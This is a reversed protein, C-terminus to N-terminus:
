QPGCQNLLSDISSTAKNRRATWSGSLTVYNAGRDDLAAKSKEFFARREEPKGFLRLGDDIWPVDIDTLLYLDALEPTSAFWPDVSGTLTESWVATLVADTDEIILRNAIPELARRMAEHVQAITVLHDNIWDDPHYQEDYIRGYEPMYSTNYHKALEKALTTKGTSEPGFLCIRKLFHPKVLEPLLHWHALPTSLISAASIPVAEHDPDIIVCEANLEKALRHVYPDSGFIRHIPSPHLQQILDRWISWFQPHDSPQQPIKKDYHLVQAEPFLQQMWDHRVTGPVPDNPLSCVLITLQDCLQSATRCLFEHGKHPPMFKGLM